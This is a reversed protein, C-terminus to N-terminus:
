NKRLRELVNERLDICADDFKGEIDGEYCGCFTTSETKSFEETIIRSVDLIAVASVVDSLYAWKEVEKCISLFNSDIIRVRMEHNEPYVPSFILIRKGSDPQEEFKHWM